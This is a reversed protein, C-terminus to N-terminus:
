QTAIPACAAVTCDLEYGTLTVIQSAGDGLFTAGNGTLSVGVEAQQLSDIYFLVPQDFASFGFGTPIPAFFQTIFAGAGNVVLVSINTPVTNFDLVGAIHQVVVRHGSAVAPFLFPCSSGVCGGGNNVTAQYAIRGPDTVNVSSTPVPSADSNVVSVLTSVVARATGTGFAAGIIGAVALGIVVLLYNKFRAV